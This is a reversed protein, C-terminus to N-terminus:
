RSDNKDTMKRLRRQSDSERTEKMFQTNKLLRKLPVIDHFLSSFSKQFHSVFIVQLNREHILDEELTELTLKM